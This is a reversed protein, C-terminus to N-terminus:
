GFFIRTISRITESITFSLMLYASSIKLVRGRSRKSQGNTRRISFMTPRTILTLDVEEGNFESPFHQSIAHTFTGVGSKPTLPSLWGIRIM